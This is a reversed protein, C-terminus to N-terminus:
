TGSGTPASARGTPPRLPRPGAERSPGALTARVFAAEAQLTDTLFCSVFTAPTRWAAAKLIDSLCVGGFLACSTAQARVDHARPPGQASPDLAGPAAQIIGVIWRSITERSAPTFPRRPLIFLRGEQGRLSKTCHIYRRLARVPFWAKTRRFQPSLSSLKPVFLDGPVFDLTQNKALFAHDPILRVGNPDFRIHGPKVSLAQLASRWRATAADLLFLTKHTLDELSSDALPEFPPGALYELVRNIEWSPPLSRLPPRKVAFGRLLHEIEPATGVSRGGPFGRHVASIASRYNKITNPQLGSRFQLHVLFDGVHRLSASLPDVGLEACWRRFRTIRSDYTRITSGRRSAAALM